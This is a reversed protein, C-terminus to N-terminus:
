SQHFYLGLIDDLASNPSNQLQSLCILGEKVNFELILIAATIQVQVSGDLEPKVEWAQFPLNAYRVSALGFTGFIGTRFALTGKEENHKVDHVQGKGWRNANWNWQCVIPLELFIVHQPWSVTISMLKDMDEEQRRMEEEIEEPLKRVGPESPKPPVYIVSFPVQELKKPLTLGTINMNMTVFNQPQPPQYLLDLHFVGGIITFRRLNIIDAPINIFFKKRMATYFEEDKLIAFANPSPDLKKYPVPPIEEEDSESSTLQSEAESDSCDADDDDNEIPKNDLNGNGDRNDYKYKLRVRWEKRASTKLDQKLQPPVVPGVFSNCQDSLHDYKLYMARIAMNECHISAPFMVHMNMDSFNVDLRPKSPRRPNPLPIPLQVRLWICLIVYEDKFNYNATPIDIKNMKKDISRLINYTATNLSTAQYQRFIHRLWKLNEIKQLEEDNITDLIDELDSILKVVDATRKSAEEITTNEITKEWIHLYNNMQDCVSANPLRGCDVYLQWETKEKELEMMEKDYNIIDNIADVSASLQEERVQQEATEEEDKKLALRKEEEFRQRELEAMRAAEMEQELRLKELHEATMRAKEKKSLKKRPGM